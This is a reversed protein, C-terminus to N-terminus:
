HTQIRELVESVHVATIKGQPNQKLCEQALSSVLAPIGRAQEFVASLAEELFREAPQKGLAHGLFPLLEERVLGTLSVKPAIRRWLPFLQPHLLRDKLEPMASFLATFLPPDELSAESLTRIEHFTEDRIVQAEDFYVVLRTPLSRLTQLILRITEPRRTRMPLHLAEALFRILATPSLQGQSLYLIQFRNRDLSKELSRLLTTKGTGSDGLLLLYAADRELANQLSQFAQQFDQYPFPEPLSAASNKM